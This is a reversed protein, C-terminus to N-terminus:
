RRGVAFTATYRRPREGGTRPVPDLATLRLRLPAAALTDAPRLGPRPNTTLTDPAFRATPTSRGMVVLAEGAWVCQVDLPCRSDRAVSLFRARTSDRAVCPPSGFTM